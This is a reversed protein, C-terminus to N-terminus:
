QQDESLDPDGYPITRFRITINGASDQVKYQIIDGHVTVEVKKTIDGDTEDYAAYGEEEYQGGQPVFYRNDRTLFVSPPTHDGTPETQKKHTFVGSVRLIALIILLPLLVLLIDRVIKKPSFNEKEM